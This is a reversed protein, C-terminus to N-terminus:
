VCLSQLSASAEDSLDRVRVILKTHGATLSFALKLQSGEGMNELHAFFFLLCISDLHCPTLQTGINLHPVLEHHGERHGCLVLLVDVGKGLVIRSHSFQLLLQFLSLYALAMEAALRARFRSIQM